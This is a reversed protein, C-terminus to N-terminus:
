AVIEACLSVREREHVTPLPAAPTVPDTPTDDPSGTTVAETTHANVVGDAATPSSTPAQVRRKKAALLDEDEDEPPPPPLAINESASPRPLTALIRVTEGVWDWALKGGEQKRSLQVGALCFYFADRATFAAGNADGGNMVSSFTACTPLMDDDFEKHVLVRVDGLTDHPGCYDGSETILEKKTAPSADDTKTHVPLLLRQQLKSNASMM